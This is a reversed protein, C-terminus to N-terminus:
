FTVKTSKLKAKIPQSRRRFIPIRSGNPVARFPVIEAFVQKDFFAIFGTHNQHTQHQQPAWFTAKTSTLKTKFISSRDQYNANHALKNRTM